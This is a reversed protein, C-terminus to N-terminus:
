LNGIFGEAGILYRSRRIERQLIDCLCAVDQRVVVIDRDAALCIGCTDVVDGRWRVTHLRDLVM